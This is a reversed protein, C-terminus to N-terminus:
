GFSPRIQIVHFHPDTTIHDYVVSPFDMGTQAAFYIWSISREQWQGDPFLSDRLRTLQQFQTEDRRIASKQVKEFVQGALHRSRSLAQNWSDALTADIAQIYPTQVSFLAELNRNFEDADPLMRGDSLIREKVWAVSAIEKSVSVQHKDMLRQVAPEIIVGSARPIVLPFPVHNHEFLRPFQAWYATEAPGTVVAAVPFLTSQWLSRLIGGPSYREPQNRGDAILNDPSMVQDMGAPIFVQDRFDLRHRGSVSKWFLNVDKYQIQQQFGASVLAMTSVEVLSGSNRNLVEAEFVPLGLQKCAHTSPDVVLIGLPSLLERMLGTFARGFTNGAVYHRNILEITSAGNPLGSLSAHLDKVQEEWQEPVQRDGASLYSPGEAEWTLPPASPQRYVAIEKFDHDEAEVWFVPIFSYEPFSNAFQEAWKRATLAKFLTLLPGGFFGAQQGTAIVLSNPQRLTHIAESVPQSMQNEYQRAMEDAMQKRVSPNFAAVQRFVDRSHHQNRYDAPFLGTASRSGALFHHYFSTPAYWDSLPTM